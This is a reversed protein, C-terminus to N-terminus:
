LESLNRILGELNSLIDDYTFFEVGGLDASKLRLLEGRDHGDDRGIIVVGGVRTAEDRNLNLMDLIAIRHDRFEHQWSLVQDCAQTFESTRGGGKKLLRKGPRELEILRLHGSKSLVIFDTKFKSLIPAKAFIKEPSFIHLLVPNETFFQQVEEEGPDRDLLNRFRDCVAQLAGEEYVRTFSIEDGLRLFRQGLLAHLNERLLVLSFENAGCSCRFREPLDKYWIAGKAEEQVSRELAAYVVITENCKTCTLTLQVSKAARPDSKIAAIREPSLPPAPAHFFTLGGVEFSCDDEVWSFLLQGPEAIAPFVDPWPIGVVVWPTLVSFKLEDPYGPLLVETPQMSSFSLNLHFLENSEDHCVLRGGKFHVPNYAALVIQFGRLPLPYIHSVVEPRLRLISLSTLRPDVNRERNLGDSLGLFAVRPINEEIKKEMNDSTRSVGFLRAL